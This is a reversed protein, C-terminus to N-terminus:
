KASVHSAILIYSRSILSAILKPKSESGIFPIGNTEKNNQMILIMQNLQNQLQDMRANMAADNSPTAARLDISGGQAMAMNMIRSGSNEHVNNRPTQNSPKYMSLVRKSVAEEQHPNVKLIIEQHRNEKVSIEELRSNDFISNNFSKRPNNSYASLATSANKFLFSERQKEEQRIMCNIDMRASSYTELYDKVEKAIDKVRIRRINSESAECDSLGKMVESDMVLPKERQFVIDMNMNMYFIGLEPEKIVLGEIPMIGPPPILNMALTQPPHLGLNKAQDMVWQFKARLSQLMMDNSKGTKKSALAHVELWESFHLSQEKMIFIEKGKAPDRPPTPERLPTPSFKSSTTRFLQNTFDHLSKQQEVPKLLHKLVFTNLHIPNPIFAMIKFRKSSPQKDLDDDDSNDEMSVTGKKKEEPNHVVMAKENSVVQFSPKEGRFLILLTAGQSKSGKTQDPRQADKEKAPNNKERKEGLLLRKLSNQQAEVHPLEEAISNLVFSKISDKLFISSEMDGLRSHLSSVEECIHDMHDPLSLRKAFANDHLIHDSKSVENKHTDDSDATHFRSVSRLDDDIMSQLDSDSGKIKSKTDYPSKPPEQVSGRIPGAEDLLKEITPIGLYLKEDVEEMAMFEADKEERPPMLPLVTVEAHQTKTVQKKPLIVRDKYPSKPKFSPSIKKKKTKLDITANPYIVPQVSARFLSKDTTDDANVEGFPPLLSQEPEESLKAVKLMHSTLPVEFKLSKQFSAAKITHPKVLTLDNRVYDKGLFKEFVLSLFRTYYINLEMNKKRNQLKHVLDLFIIGGIDIELGWILYYAITQQNHNMQDHSGQMGGLCMIIYQMFIRWIPSFYRMKLPSSNVLIISSLTSKDKDFLGLTELRARVTENPPLPVDDENSHELLAVVNNFGIISDTCEAKASSMAVSSQKKASWCVLKRKLIQFGGSTSKRDLNCGDYDSYSYAKLDFGSGKPYWLGLNSTGKLYWARPAQKLEYLAKDLKCVHNPYENIEFGPPQQVYVEELIKWNLFANKCGNIPEFIVNTQPDAPELLDALETQDPENLAPHNDAKTFEPPDESIYSETEEMEQRKINFVRFAKAVLSYGLFFGDDDKKDFKGLHDKKTSKSQRNAIRTRGSNPHKKAYDFAEYSISDCVECGPYFEYHDSHHDNFGCYKCEIFPKSIILTKKLSPKLPSQAKLKSLTKKIADHELHEKTLHNTSGCTSCKPKSYCDDFLHNRYRCHKCPRFWTKQKSAKSCSPQTSSPLIDSPFEIQMKLGKVEEILTLLLQETSSDAKKNSCPKSGSPIKKTKKKIVYAPSVKTPTRTKMPEPTDLTLDAMNFALNFLSILSESTGFPAARILKPLPPLPEQSDCKSESDSTFEPALTSSSEDAKTFVVEKSSIKEKRRGKRSLAKVINRPVQEPLLQDLIVKSCTLNKRQDEVYHLDVHTYDLGHKREDGDTMFLLRHVKKMTIDVWQGLRADTKEVSPEDKAIAMFARIKISVEDDSSVSEDDWDFSKAVLGKESKEKDKKVKESKGKTMDDIRKTLVDM